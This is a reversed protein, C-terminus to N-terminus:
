CGFVKQTLQSRSLLSKPLFIYAVLTDGRLRLQDLAMIPVTQRYVLLLERDFLVTAFVFRVGVEHRVKDIAQLEHKVRRGVTDDLDYQM